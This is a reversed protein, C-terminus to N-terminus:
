DPPPYVVMRLLKQYGGCAPVEHSEYGDERMGAARYCAIAALNDPFVVLSVQLAGRMNFARSLLQLTLARGVGRGRLEPNVILHGLWYHQQTARLVNLEGYALPQSEEPHVLALQEHGHARWQRVREVTLPPKTNPALWLAEHADRVWSVIFEAQDPNFPALRLLTPDATLQVPKLAM